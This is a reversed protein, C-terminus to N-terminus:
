IPRSADLRSRAEDICDYRFQQYGNHETLKKQSPISQIM